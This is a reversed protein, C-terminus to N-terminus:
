ILIYLHFPIQLVQRLVSLFTEAMSDWSVLFTDTMPNNLLFGAVRSLGLALVTDQAGARSILLTSGLQLHIKDVWLASIACSPASCCNSENCIFEWHALIFIHLLLVYRHYSSSLKICSLLVTISRQLGEKYAAVPPISCSTVQATPQLPSGGARGASSHLQAAATAACSCVCLFGAVASHQDNRGPVHPLSVLLVAAMM